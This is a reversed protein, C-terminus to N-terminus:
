LSNHHFSEIQGEVQGSTKLWNQCRPKFTTLIESKICGVSGMQPLYSESSCSICYIHHCQLWVCLRIDMWTSCTYTWFNQLKYFVPCCGTTCSSRSSKHVIQSLFVRSVIAYLVFITIEVLEQYLFRRVPKTSVYRQSLNVLQKTRWTLIQRYLIGMTYIYSGCAHNVEVYNLSRSGKM